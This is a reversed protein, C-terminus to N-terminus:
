GAQALEIARVTNRQKMEGHHLARDIWFAQVEAPLGPRLAQRKACAMKDAHYAVLALAETRAIENVKSTMDLGWLKCDLAVTAGAIL